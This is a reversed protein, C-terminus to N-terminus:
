QWSKILTEEIQMALTAYSMTAQLDPFQAMLYDTYTMVMQTLRFRMQAGESDDHRHDLYYEVPQPFQGTVHCRDNIDAQLDPIIIGIPLAYSITQITM